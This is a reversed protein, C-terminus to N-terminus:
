WCKVIEVLGIVVVVLMGGIVLVPVAAIALVRRLYSRAM